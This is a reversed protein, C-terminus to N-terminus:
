QDSFLNNIESAIRCSLACKFFVIFAPAGVSPVEAKKYVRLESQEELYDEEPIIKHEHNFTANPKFMQANVDGEEFNWFKVVKMKDNYKSINLGKQIRKVESNVIPIAYVTYCTNNTCMTKSSQIVGSEEFRKNRFWTSEKTDFKYMLFIHNDLYPRNIDESFADVFGAEETFDEKKFCDSLLPIIMKYMTSM